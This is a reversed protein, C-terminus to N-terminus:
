DNPKGKANEVSKFYKTLKKKSELAKDGEFIERKIVENELIEKFVENEAKVEPNMKKVLKRIADLIPDSLLLNGIVFKNLVQKKALFDELVSKSISEKCLMYLQDFDSDKRLTLDILNLECVLEHSVPKGFIIKYIKWNVGNTLIIWDTGKNSGYDVAQKIHDAKLDLNMAKVEILFRPENDIKIALDCFTNKIRYESTIETYKDYGFVDSLIDTVVSVTDSENIDKAKLAKLIPQYKKVGETIRQKSKIPIAAM